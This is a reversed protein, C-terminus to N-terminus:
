KGVQATVVYFAALKAFAKARQYFTVICNSLRDDRHGDLGQLYNAALIYVDPHRATDADSAFLCQYLAVHFTGNLYYLSKKKSVGSLVSERRLASVRCPNVELGAAVVTCCAHIPM